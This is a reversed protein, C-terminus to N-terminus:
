ELEEADVAEKLFLSTKKDNHFKRFKEYFASLRDPRRKLNIVYATRKFQIMVM